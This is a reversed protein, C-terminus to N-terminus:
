EKDYVRVAALKSVKTEVFAPRYVKAGKPITPETQKLAKSTRATQLMTMAVRLFAKEITSSSHDKHLYVLTTQTQNSVQPRLWGFSEMWLQHNSEQYKPVIQITRMNVEFGKHKGSIAQTDPLLSAKVDNPLGIIDFYVDKFTGQPGRRKKVRIIIRVNEWEDDVPKPSPNAEPGSPTCDPSSNSM